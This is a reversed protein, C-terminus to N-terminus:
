TQTVLIRARRQRPTPPICGYFYYASLISAVGCSAFLDNLTFEPKTLDIGVYVAALFLWMVRPGRGDLPSLTPTKGQEWEKDRRFALPVAFVPTIMCFLLGLVMSLRPVGRRITEEAFMFFTMVGFGTFLHASVRYPSVELLTYIWDAMWQYRALMWDDIKTM